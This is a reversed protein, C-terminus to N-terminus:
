LRGGVRSVDYGSDALAELMDQTPQEVPVATQGRAPSAFIQAATPVSEGPIVECIETVHRKHGKGRFTSLQVIIQIHDQIQRYAFAPSTGIFKQQLDALKSIADQATKAHITTMSGAAGAMALFMTIVEDGRVEGVIIRQADARLAGTLLESMSVEGIQTGTKVDREGQGPRAELSLVNYHQPAGLHLERETEITIVPEDPDFAAALARVFTTKGANPHGSVVISLRAKVAATLFDAADQSLMGLDVLDELTINRKRHCRIVVSPRSSIPPHFAQLRDGSPLTMALAPSSANFERAGEGLEECWGQIMAILADDNAAVPDLHVTSGDTKRVMVNDAGKIHINEVDPDDLLPQVSGLRYAQNFLLRQLTGRQDQTLRAAGERVRKESYEDLITAIIARGIEEQNEPTEERNQREESVNQALLEIVAWDSAPDDVHNQARRTVVEPAAPATTPEKISRRGRSREAAAILHLAAPHTSTSTGAAPGTQALPLDKFLDLNEPQTSM